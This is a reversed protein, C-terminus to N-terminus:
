SYAGNGVLDDRGPEFHKTKGLFSVATKKKIIEPEM